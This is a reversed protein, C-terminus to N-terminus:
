DLEVTAEGQGAPMDPNTLDCTLIANDDRLTASVLMPRAGGLTLMFRSLHRTDRHYGGEPGGVRNRIDGSRDFVAFTDGNKMALTRMEQLSEAAAVAYVPEREDEGAIEQALHGM